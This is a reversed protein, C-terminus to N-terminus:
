AIHKKTERIYLFLPFTGALGFLMTIVWYLWVKKIGYKKSEHYTWIFFVLVAILLDIIFATSIKNAFMGNWTANADLWFLWNGTEYSEIVVPINPAIFGIIALILYTTKM